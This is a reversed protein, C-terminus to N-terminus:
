DVDSSSVFLEMTSGSVSVSVDSVTVSDVLSNGGTEANFRRVLAWNTFSPASKPIVRSMLSVLFVRNSCSSVM